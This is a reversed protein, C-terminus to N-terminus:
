KPSKVHVNVFTGSSKDRATGITVLFQRKTSLFSSIKLRRAFNRRFSCWRVGPRDTHLILRNARNSRFDIPFAKIEVTYFQRRCRKQVLRAIVKGSVEGWCPCGPIVLPYLPFPFVIDQHNWVPLFIPFFQLFNWVKWLNEITEITNLNPRCQRLQWCKEPYTSKKMKQDPNIRFKLASSESKFKRYRLFNM